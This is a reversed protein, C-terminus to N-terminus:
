CGNLSPRPPGRVLRELPSSADTARRGALSQNSRTFGDHFSRRTAERKQHPAGPILFLRQPVRLKTELISAIVPAIIWTKVCTRQVRGRSSFAVRLPDRWSDCQEVLRFEYVGGRRHLVTDMTFSEGIGAAANHESSGRRNGLGVLATHAFDAIQLLKRFLEVRSVLPM